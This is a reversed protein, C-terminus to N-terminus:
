ECQRQQTKKNMLKVDNLVQVCFFLQKLANKIKKNLM